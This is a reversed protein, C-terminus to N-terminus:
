ADADEEDDFHFQLAAACREYKEQLRREDDAAVYVHALEYSYSDHAQPADSLRMGRRAVPVVTVGSIERQLADIEAQSARHRVVGDRFRRLHCKGALAYPGERHPMHPERGLALQLMVYHNPAGDVQQFLEAHSQSHRPNVELISVADEDEPPCFFEICYTSDDLGIQEIVRKSVDAMREQTRAPLASPYQYRMFSSTGPYLLSDVIGYVEVRGHHSYGEVTAQAGSLSEEVLCAQGGAEAIERPLGILGLIHDFARGLRGIGERIAGVADAFEEGDAVRFALESSYSKVPKVWMPYRLGSPPVAPGELDLLAFRPYADVVKQQELRSWYKHECKAVAELDAGPLGFRHCLIPVMTSVPFDWYGIIADVDGDFAELEREAKELLEVVQVEGYQLEDLDLLPVFDYDESRPIRRLMEANKDDLGIVFVHAPDM